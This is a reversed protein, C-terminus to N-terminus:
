ASPDQRPGVFLFNIPEGNKDFHLQVIPSQGDDTILIASWTIKAHDPVNRPEPVFYVSKITGSHYPEDTMEVHNGTLMLQTTAIASALEERQMSFVTKLMNIGSDTATMVDIAQEQLLLYPLVINPGRETAKTTNIRLAVLQMNIDTLLTQLTQSTFTRILTDGQTITGTVMTTANPAMGFTVTMGPGLERIITALQDTPKLHM